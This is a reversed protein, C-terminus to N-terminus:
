LNREVLVLEPDDPDMRRTFGLDNMLQLMPANNKLVTGEIVQLGHDRAARFLAKM